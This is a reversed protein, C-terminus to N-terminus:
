PRPTTPDQKGTDVGTEESATTEPSPDDTNVTPHNDNDNDNGDNSSDDSSDDSSYNVLENLLKNNSKLLTLIEELTGEKLATFESQLARVVDSISKAKTGVNLTAGM